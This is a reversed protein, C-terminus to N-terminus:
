VAFHRLLGFVSIVSSEWRETLYSTCHMLIATEKSTFGNYTPQPLMNRHLMTVKRGHQVSDCGFLCYNDYDHYKELLPRSLSLFVVAFEPYGTERDFNSGATKKLTSDFSLNIGCTPSMDLVTNVHIYSSFKKM